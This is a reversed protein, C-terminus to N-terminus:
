PRAAGADIRCPCSYPCRRQGADIYPLACHVITLHRILGGRRIKSVRGRRLSLRRPQAWLLDLPDFVKLIQLREDLLRRIAIERDNAILVNRPRGALNAAAAGSTDGNRSHVKDRSHWSCRRMMRRVHGGPWSLKRWDTEM